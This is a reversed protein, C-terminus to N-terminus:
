GRTGSRLSPRTSQLGSNSPARALYQLRDISRNLFDAVARADELRGLGTLVSYERLGAVIRVAHTPEDGAVFVARAVTMEGLPLHRRGRWPLPGHWISLGAADLTVTTRNTFEAIGVYSALVGLAGVLVRGTLEVVRPGPEFPVWGAVWVLLLALGQNVFPRIPISPRWIHTLRVRCLHTGNAPDATDREEKIEATVGSSLCEVPLADRPQM